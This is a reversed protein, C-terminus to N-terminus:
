QIAEDHRGVFTLLWAYRDHASAYNRNLELARKFGKEGETWNWDHTVRAHALEAHAEGLTNDIELAKMAAKKAQFMVDRRPLYGSNAYSTYSAAMGSYALAYNPDIELARKYCEISKDLDDRGEQNWFYRGQLYLNYAEINETPEDEIREVEEPSLVTKLERAVQKAVNIQIDFIDKWEGEFINGWIHDDTSAHILQVRIRVQDEYRQTSGELLYNVKLEEGILPSGKETNKYQMISTRSRVEFANIKYLQMIIEDTIADGLHAFESDDSMNEFPLVAISKELEIVEGKKFIKPYALIVVVVVLIAIIVDGVRLKRKVPESLPEHEKVTEISETKKVGEPTIDFIWSLIVTIPFGIIILVIIFTVTWDPLGLRPLVIEGAEMIIFATAAYMAIVRFVKRRKLEQWFQFPNNPKDSM